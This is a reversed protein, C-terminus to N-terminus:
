PSPSNTVTPRPAATDVALLGANAALGRLPRVAESTLLDKVTAGATRVDALSTLDCSIEHVTAGAARAEDGVDHLAQGPRGVLLLDPREGEPRNAMAMTASRGLGGAPGTILVTGSSIESM